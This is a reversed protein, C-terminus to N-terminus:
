PHRVRWELLPETLTGGAAEHRALWARAVDGRGLRELCPLAREVPVALGPALRAARDWAEVASACDGVVEHEAGLGIWATFSQPFDRALAEIVSRQSRWEHNRRVTLGAFALVVLLLVALAAPRWPRGAEVARAVGLGALGCAFVSATFLFREGAVDFLPVLHSYPLLAAAFAGLLWAVRAHGARVARWLVGLFALLVALGVFSQWPPTGVAPPVISWDYFSTLPHPWVLLRADLAVVRMMTLALESGTCDPCFALPIPRVLAARVAFVAALVAGQAALLGYLRPRPVDRDRRLAAWLLVWAPVVVADEKSLAGLLLLLASAAAAGLARARSRAELAAGAGLWAGLAFLASLLTTRYTVVNVAETHVPHVVFLLTGVAAAVRDRLARRLAVAVLAAVGGYLLVDVLRFGFPGPGLLAHNLAYSALAVPRYFGGNQARLAPDALREGWAGTFLAPVDALSRISANGQVLYVDDWVFDGPLSNLYLVVALGFAALPLFAPRELLRLV